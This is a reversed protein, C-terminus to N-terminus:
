AAGKAKFMLSVCRDCYAKGDPAVTHAEECEIHDNDCFTGMSRRRWGVPLQNRTEPKPTPKEGRPRAPERIPEGLDEELKDLYHPDNIREDMIEDMTRPPKPPVFDPDHACLWATREVPSMGTDFNAPWPTGDKAVRSGKPKTQPKPEPKATGGSKEALPAAVPYTSSSENGSRSRSLSVSASGSGSGSGYQYVKPPIEGSLFEGGGQAELETPTNGPPINGGGELRLVAVRHSGRTAKPGYKDAATDGTQVLRGAEKLYRQWKIITKRDMGTILELKTLSLWAEDSIEDTHMKYCLWLHVAGSPMQLIGKDDCDILRYRPQGSM